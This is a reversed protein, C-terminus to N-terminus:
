KTTNEGLIKDFLELLETSNKDNELKSGLQKLLLRFSVAIAYYRKSMDAIVMDKKGIEKQLEEITQKMQVISKVTEADHAEHAKIETIKIEKESENRKIIVNVIVTIATGLAAIAAIWVAYINGDTENAM